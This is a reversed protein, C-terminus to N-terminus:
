PQKPVDFVLVTIVVERNPDSPHAFIARFGTESGYSSARKFHSHQKLVDPVAKLVESLNKNRNFM